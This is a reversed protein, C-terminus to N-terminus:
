KKFLAMVQLEKGSLNNESDANDFQELSKSSPFIFSKGHEHWWELEGQLVM